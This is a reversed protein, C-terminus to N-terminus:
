GARERERREHELSHARRCTRCQRHGAKTVYTNSTDYPHGQPCRTKAAQGYPLSTPVRGAKLREWERRSRARICTRCARAGSTPNIYTNAEDFPHGKYCETKRSNRSSASRSRRNNEAPPVAELHAPNVCGPNGCLHDVEYGAPIPGVWLQHAVRHALIPRRGDWSEAYGASIHAGRWEWCGESRVIRALFRDLYRGTLSM